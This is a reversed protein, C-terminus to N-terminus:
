RLYSDIIICRVMARSYDDLQRLNTQGRSTPFAPSIYRIVSVANVNHKLTM